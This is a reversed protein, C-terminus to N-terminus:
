YTPLIEEKMVKEQLIGVQEINIFKNLIGKFFSNNKNIVIVATTDDKGTEQAKANILPAISYKTTHNKLEDSSWIAADIEKNKLRQLIQNYSTEVYEVELGECEYCTLLFQDISDPDIGVKMGSQIKNQRKDRFVVVHEGVYSYEPFEYAIEIETSKRIELSAALKSLIVFNYRGQNLAEIRKSAGRMFALSFPIDANEFSKYLGTALGEYRKTYPLPMVGIITGIDALIWLKKYDIAVIYTGLHGRSELKIANETQLFKLALQITGRGLGFTETYQDVTKTRDGIDLMLMERALSMIAIGNKSLLKTKFQEM